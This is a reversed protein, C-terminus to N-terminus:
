TADRDVQPEPSSLSPVRAPLATESDECVSLTEPTILATQFHGGSYTVSLRGQSPTM